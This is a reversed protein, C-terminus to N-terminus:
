SAAPTVRPRRRRMIRSVVFWIVGGLLVLPLAWGGAVAIGDLVALTNHRLYHWAATVADTGARTGPAPAIVVTPGNLDITVAALAASSELVSQQSQLQQLQQAIPFLQGQIQLFDSLATAKSLQSELLNVEQQLVDITAANEAVQGTVDQGTTQESTVKGLFSLDGLASTLDNTAVEIVVQGSSPVSRASGGSMSSSQVYGGYLAALNAIKNMLGPVSGGTVKLSLAATRVVQPGVPTVATTMGTTGSGNASPATSAAAATPSPAARAKAARQSLAPADQGHATHAPLGAASKTTSPGSAAGKSGGSGILLRGGAAAVVLILVCGVAVRVKRPMPKM